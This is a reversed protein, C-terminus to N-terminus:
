SAYQGSKFADATQGDSNDIDVRAYGIASTYESNWRHDLYASMGCDPRAAGTVPTRRNNRQLKLGVDIPADNFYNEVGRGYIAQLRFVNDKNANLNSSLSLGWGTT